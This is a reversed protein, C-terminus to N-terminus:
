NSNTVLFQITRNYPIGNMIVEVTLSHTGVDTHKFYSSKLEFSAINTHKIDKSAIYWEISSYENFNDLTITISVGDTHPIVLPNNIGTWSLIMNDNVIQEFSISFSFDMESSIPPFTYAITITSGTNIQVTASQGNIFASNLGTFTFGDTATLTLTATYIVGYFSQDYAPLWSVESLTYNNDVATATTNPIEGKRPTDISITVSTIVSPIAPILRNIGTQGCRLCTYVENGSTITTPPITVVWDWTHSCSNDEIACATFTFLIFILFLAFLINFYLKNTKM